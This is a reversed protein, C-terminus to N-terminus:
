QINFTRLDVTWKLTYMKVRQSQRIALCFPILINVPKFRTLVYKKRKCCYQVPLSAPPAVKGHKVMWPCLSVLARGSGAVFPKWTTELIIRIGAVWLSFYCLPAHTPTTLLWSQFSSVNDRLQYGMPQLIFM